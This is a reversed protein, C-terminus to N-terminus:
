WSATIYGRLLGTPNDRNGMADDFADGPVLFAGEARYEVIYGRWAVHRYRAGVMTEWGLTKGPDPSGAVGVPDGGAEFSSLLDRLPRHAMAGVVGLALTLDATADWLLLPHIYLTNTVSGSEVLNDIGRPSDRLREEDHAGDVSHQSWAPLHHDFLLLGVRYNPDFRFRHLSPGRPNADGSAFGGHLQLGIASALHKIEFQAAAGAADIRIPEDVSPGDARTTEGRLYVAEGALRFSWNQSEDTWNHDGFVDLATVNLTSAAGEEPPRDTQNRYAGYVGLTSSEGQWMASTLFQYARDGEAWSANEDRYVVDAGVIVFLDDLWGPGDLPRLPATAFLARLARDGGFSYGFFYDDEAAGSNALLGLGWHSTQLGARLLGVPSEWQAYIQRPDFFHFGDAGVPDAGHDAIDPPSPLGSGLLPGSFLDFEVGAEFDGFGLSRDVRLRSYLGRGRGEGAPREFTDGWVRLSNSGPVLGDTRVETEDVPALVPDAFEVPESDDEAFAPGAALCAIIGVCFVLPLRLWFASKISHM